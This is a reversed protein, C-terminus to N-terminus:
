KSNANIQLTGIRVRARIMLPPKQGVLGTVMLCESESMTFSDDMDMSGLTGPTPKSRAIAMQM